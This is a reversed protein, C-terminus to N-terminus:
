ERIDVDSFADLNIEIYDNTNKDITSEKQEPINISLGVLDEVSGLEERGDSDDEPSSNKSIVYILLQPIYRETSKRRIRKVDKSEATNIEDILSRNLDDELDIDALIDLPNRLTGINIVGNDKRDVIRSRNVKNISYKGM